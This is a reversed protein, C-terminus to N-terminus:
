SIALADNVKPIEHKFSRKADENRRENNRFKSLESKTPILVQSKVKDQKYEKKTTM